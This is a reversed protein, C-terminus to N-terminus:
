QNRIVLLRQHLRKRDSYFAMWDVNERVMLRNYNIGDRVLVM